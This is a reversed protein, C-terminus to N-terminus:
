WDRNDYRENSSVRLWVGILICVGVVIGLALLPNDRLVTLIQGVVNGVRAFYDTSAQGGSLATMGLVALATVALILM